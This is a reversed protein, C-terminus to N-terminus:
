IFYKDTDFGKGPGVMSDWWGIKKKEDDYYGAVHADGSLAHLILIANSKTEDLKGYTEFRINVPGLRRGCDLLLKDEETLGFTFDQPIVIGVSKEEM